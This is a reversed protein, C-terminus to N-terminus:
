SKSKNNTENSKGKNKNKIVTTSILAGCIAGIILLMMSSPPQNGKDTDPQSHESEASDVSPASSEQLTSPKVVPLLGMDKGVLRLYAKSRATGCMATALSLRKQQAAQEKYSVLNEFLGNETTDCGVTSRFLGYSCPSHARIQSAKTIPSADTGYLWRSLSEFRHQSRHFRYGEQSVQFPTKGGLAEMPTDWNFSVPNQKWKHIYTKPVDWGGSSASLEVADMLAKSNLIHVGHGYEGDIDHGAVVLPKYRDLLQVYFQVFANYDAGVAKYDLLAEDLSESYLDPYSSIYPYYRVGNHWLGDLLEHPRDHTNLHNTLYVVQVAYGSAACWPIMGAFYLQDDDSHTPCIMIDAKDLLEWRQVSAPLVGEGYVYVDAISAGNPFALELSLAGNLEVYEHLYGNEGCGHEAGDATLRWGNPVRDFKVYLGHIPIISQITLSQAKRYTYINDDTVAADAKGNLLVLCDDTLQPATVAGTDAAFAHPCAYSLVQACLLLALLRKLM